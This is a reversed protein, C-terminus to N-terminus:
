KSLGSSRRGGPPWAPTSILFRTTGSSRNPSVPALSVLELPLYPRSQPYHTHGCAVQIRPGPLWSEPPRPLPGLTKDGLLLSLSAALTESFSFSDHLHRDPEPQEEIARALRHAVDRNPWNDWITYNHASLGTLIEGFKILPSGDRDLGRLYNPLADIGDAPVGLSATIVKGLYNHEDCNWFDLQHGHLILLPATDVYRNPSLGFPIADIAGSILRDM